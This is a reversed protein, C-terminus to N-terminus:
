KLKFGILAIVAFAAATALAKFVGWKIDEIRSLVKIAKEIFEHQQRHQENHMPCNCNKCDPTGVDALAIQSAKVADHIIREIQEPSMTIGRRREQGDYEEQM